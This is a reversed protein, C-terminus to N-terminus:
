DYPKILGLQFAEFVAETRSHVALKRYIHKIHTTVTHISMGLANAAEDRSYGKAILTLVSKERETLSASPPNASNKPENQFRRLLYRAIGPSIPSDGKMLGLIHSGVKALSSDKLIYGTAGAEFADVVHDEDSFSSIVMIETESLLQKAQRILDIGDGDPLGIDVLLIDPNCELTGAADSYNTATGILKLRPENEVVQVLVDLTVPNDEIILVSYADM